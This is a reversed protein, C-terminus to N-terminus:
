VGIEHHFFYANRASVSMEEGKVKKEEEDKKKRALSFPGFLVAGNPVPGTKGHIVGTAIIFIAHEVYGQLYVRVFTSVPNVRFFGGVGPGNM